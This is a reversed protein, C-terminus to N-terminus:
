RIFFANFTEFDGPVDLKVDDIDVNYLRVFKTILFDKVAVTRIRAIWRILSTLWFRPLLYQLLVFLRSM